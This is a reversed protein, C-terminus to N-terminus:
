YGAKIATITLEGRNTFGTAIFLESIYSRATAETIGLKRAIIKNPLAQILLDFVARLYDPLQEVRQRFDDYAPDNKGLAMYSEALIQTPRQGFVRQGGHAYKLLQALEAIPIDKTLFGRVNSALSQGLSDEHEFSTLMVVDVSPYLRAIEKATSIGDLVPMDVDLLVVDVSKDALIRLAKSGDAVAALVTIGEQLHLLNALCERIIQDDDAILVRINESM